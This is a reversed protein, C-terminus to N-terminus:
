PKCGCLKNICGKNWTSIIQYKMEFAILTSFNLEVESFERQLLALKDFSSNAVKFSSRQLFEGDASTIKTNEPLSDKLIAELRHSSLRLKNIFAFVVLSMNATELVNMQDGYGKTTQGNTISDIKHYLILYFNDDIDIMKVEGDNDVIAPYKVQKEEENEGRVDIFSEAIGLAQVKGEPIFKLSSNLWHKNLRDVIKDLFPM